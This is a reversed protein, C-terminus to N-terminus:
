DRGKKERGTETGWCHACVFLRQKNLDDTLDYIVGGALTWQPSLEKLGGCVHQSDFLIGQQEDM